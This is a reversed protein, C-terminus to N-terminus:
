NINVILVIDNKQPTAMVDLQIYGDEIHYDGKGLKEHDGPIDNNGVLLVGNLYVLSSDKKILDHSIDRKVGDWMIFRIKVM